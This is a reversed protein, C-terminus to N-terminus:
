SSKPEPRNTDIHRSIKRLVSEFDTRTFQPRISTTDVISVPRAARETSATFLVRIPRRVKPM